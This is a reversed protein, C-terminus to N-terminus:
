NDSGDKETVIGTIYDIYFLRNNIKLEFCDGNDEVKNLFLAFDISHMEEYEFQLRLQSILDEDSFYESISNVM